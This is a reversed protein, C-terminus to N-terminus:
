QAAVEWFNPPIEKSSPSLAFSICWWVVQPIFIIYIIYILIFITILISITIMELIILIMILKTIQLVSYVSVLPWNHNILLSYLWISLWCIIIFIWSQIKLLITTAFLTCILYNKNYSSNLCSCPPMLLQNLKFGIDVM